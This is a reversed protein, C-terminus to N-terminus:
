EACKQVLVRSWKEGQWLARVAGVQIMDSLQGEAQVMRLDLIISGNEALSQDWFAAYTSAPYHFGCSLLSLALDIDCLKNPDDQSPNITKVESDPVGNGVLFAKATKLSSYAAGEAKFGFHTTGNDELDILTIASKYDKAIFLDIFGYGCGIDAVRRPAIKDITPKLALYELYLVAIARKLLLPGRAAVEAKLAEPNGNSWQRVPVGPRELDFLVESRQLVTNLMDKDSFMSLDLTDIVSSNVVETVRDANFM